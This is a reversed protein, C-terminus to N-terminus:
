AADRLAAEAGPLDERRASLATQYLLALALFRPSSLERFQAAARELGEEAAALEGREYDLLAANMAAHGFMWRDGDRLLDRAQRYLREAEERRGLDQALIGLNVSTEGTFRWNGLQQYHALAQRYCREAEAFRGLDHYLVGLAELGLAEWPLARVERSRALARQLAAEAEAFRGQDQYAVALSNLCSCELHPAAGGPFLALAALFCREAEATHDQQQAHVGLDYLFRAEADTRGEQRALALGRALYVRTEDHQRRSMAGRARSLLAELQVEAPLPSM